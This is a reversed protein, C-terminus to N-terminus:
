KHFNDKKSGREVLSGVSLSPSVLGSKWVHGTSVPSPPMPRAQPGEPQAVRRTLSHCAWAVCAGPAAPGEM